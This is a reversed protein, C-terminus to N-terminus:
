PSLQHTLTQRLLKRLLPGDLVYSPKHDIYNDGEPYLCWRFPSSLPAQVLDQPVLEIDWREPFDWILGNGITGMALKLNNSEVYNLYIRFSNAGSTIDYTASVSIGKLEIKRIFQANLLESEERLIEEIAKVTNEPTDDPIGKTYKIM